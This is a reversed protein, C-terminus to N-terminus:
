WQSDLIEGLHRRAVQHRNLEEIEALQRQYMEEKRRAKGEPSLYEEYIVRRRCYERDNMLAVVEAKRYHWQMRGTVLTPQKVGQLRGNQRLEQAGSVSIHLMWAVQRTTIWDGFYKEWESLDGVEVRGGDSLRKRMTWRSSRRKRKPRAEQEARRAARAQRVAEVEAASFWHRSHGPFKQYSTLEGIYVLHKAVGQSIGLMWAVTELDIADEPMGNPHAQKRHITRRERNSERRLWASSRALAEVEEIRFYYCYGFRQPTLQKRRMLNYMTSVARHLMRATQKVTLWGEGEPRERVRRM